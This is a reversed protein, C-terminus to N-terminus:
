KPEDGKKPTKTKVNKGYVFSRGITSRFKNIWPPSAARVINMKYWHPKNNTSFRLSDTKAFYFMTFDVDAARKLENDDLGTKFAIIGDFHFAITEPQAKIGGEVIEGPELYVLVDMTDHGAIDRSVPQDKIGTIEDGMAFDPDGIKRVKFLLSIDQALMQGSNRISIKITAQYANDIFCIEADLVTLYARVQAEAIRNSRKAADLAAQNIERQARMEALTKWVVFIGALTIPISILGAVGVASAWVAMQRQAYLDAEGQEQNHAAKEADAICKRRAVFDFRSCREQVYRETEAKISATNQQSYNWNKLSTTAVYWVTGGLILAIVLLGLGILWPGLKESWNSGFM